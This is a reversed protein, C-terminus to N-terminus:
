DALIATKIELAKQFSVFQEVLVLAFEIASGMGRSTIINGSVVVRDEVYEYDSLEEQVSPHSTIKIGPSIGARALATPAACIAAITNGKEDAQKLLDLVTKNERLRETGPMGGPLFLIDGPSLEFCKLLGDALIVIDHSGCIERSGIGLTKVEIQARRLIDIVVVAEAEELGPALIAYVKVM